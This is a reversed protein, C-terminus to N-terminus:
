FTYANFDGILSYFFLVGFTNSLLLLMYMIM